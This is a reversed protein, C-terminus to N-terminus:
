DGDMANFGFSLKAGRAIIEGATDRASKLSVRMAELKARLDVNRFAEEAPMGIGRLVSVTRDLDFIEILKDQTTTCAFHTVLFVCIIIFRLSKM